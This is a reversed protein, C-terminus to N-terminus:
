ASGLDPGDGGQAGGPLLLLQVGEGRLLALAKDVVVVEGGEGCTLHLPHTGRAPPLYAVAAQHLLGQLRNQGELRERISAPTGMAAPTPPTAMPRMVPSFPWYTM